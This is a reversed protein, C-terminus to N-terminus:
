ASDPRRRPQGGPRKLLSAVTETCTAGRSVWEKLLDEKVSVAAPEQRPDYTGIIDLFSGDRPSESNSVVIRYFPASKPATVPWVFEYHWPRQKIRRFNSPFSPPAVGRRYPNARLLNNYAGGGILLLAHSIKGKGKKGGRTMQKMMEQMETFQKLLQNVDQVRTGSGKAIRLRPPRQDGPPRAAGAPDDLQHDGRDAATGKRAAANGADAQAGQRGRPDHGPDSEMSGMKKIQRAAPGPFDELTFGEKRLKKELAQPRTPTSPRGPGERDAILVDGMGLIRSAMREPHFAELADLKEGVGVFKIPKGTVARISLAAGGRADGDLKTLIM